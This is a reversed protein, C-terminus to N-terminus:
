TRVTKRCHYMLIEFVPVATKLSEVMYLSTGPTGKINGPPQM